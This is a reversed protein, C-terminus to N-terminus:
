IDWVPCLKIADANERRQRTVASAEGKARIRRRHQKDRQQLSKKVRARVYSPDFVKEKRGSAAETTVSEEDSLQQEESCKLPQEGADDGAGSTGKFYRDMKSALLPDNQLHNVDSLSVFTASHQNDPMEEGDSREYNERQETCEEKEEEEESEESGSGNEPLIEQLLKKDMDRTFGSAAVEEDLNDERHIDAFTPYSESEFNFRKRFFDRICNVDRDFYAQANPHSTSIMQPFDILTPEDKNNLLLNFENFDCHILGHDALKVILNMLKDFLEDPHEIGHVQCLPYADGILEMVVCHRNCDVPKPVPFNRDYLAKMFAFEKLAALRSLYLWSANNRHKLYDRKEKLRRFSTRGLRHIKLALRRGEQDQVVYIDSEKGVGIQSGFGEVINRASLTKLALYDYGTNTLRFGDAHRGREYVVLKHKILERLLKHCGGHKLAAIAAVLPGPVLEHNKMGMEVATLVRFDEPTLFKLVVVNLKGM